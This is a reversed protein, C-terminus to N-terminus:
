DMISEYEAEVAEQREAALGDPLEVVFGAITDPRMTSAIGREAAFTVFRDRLAADFFMYEFGRPLGRQRTALCRSYVGADGRPLRLRAAAGAIGRRATGDDPVGSLGAGRGRKGQRHQVRDPVAHRCFRGARRAPEPRRPRLWPARRCGPRS